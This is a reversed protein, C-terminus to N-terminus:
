PVVQAKEAASGVRARYEEETLPRPVFGGQNRAYIAYFRGEAARRYVVDEYRTSEVHAGCLERVTRELIPVKEELRARTDSPDYGPLNRGYHPIENDDFKADVHTLRFFARTGFLFLWNRVVLVEGGIGWRQGPLEFKLPMAIEGKEEPTVILRIADSGARITLMAPGKETRVDHELRMPEVEVYAALTEGNLPSLATTLFQFISFVFLMASGGLLATAVVGGRIPGRRRRYFAISLAAVAGFLLFAPLSASVVGLVQPVSLLLFLASAALLARLIPRLEREGARLSSLARVALDVTIGLILTSVFLLLFAFVLGM